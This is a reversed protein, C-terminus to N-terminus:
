DAEPGLTGPTTDGEANTDAPRAPLRTITPEITQHEPAHIAATTSEDETTEPEGEELLYPYYNACVAGTETDGETPDVPATKTGVIYVTARTCKSSQHMAPRPVLRTTIHWPETGPVTTGPTAVPIAGTRHVINTARPDNITSTSTTASLEPPTDPATSIGNPNTPSTDTSITQTTGITPGRDIDIVTTTAEDTATAEATEIEQM